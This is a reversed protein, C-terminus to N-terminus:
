AAAGHHILAEFDEISRRQGRWGWWFGQSIGRANLIESELLELDLLVLKLHEGLGAQSDQQCTTSKRAEMQKDEAGGKKGRSLFRAASNRPRGWLDGSANSFRLSENPLM